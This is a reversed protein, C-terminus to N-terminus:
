YAIDPLKNTLWRMLLVIPLSAATLLLGFAAAYNYQQNKIVYQYMWFAITSTEYNIGDGYFLLIPGSAGFVNICSLFMITGFTSGILPIVIQFMERMPKVGDIKGYEIVSEPIRNMAGSFLIINMGLGTWLTFVLIAWRASNFSYLFAPVSHGSLKKWLLDIPGGFEFINKYIAVLVVGSVIMPIVFIFRFFQWGTIKKYIFYSLLLSLMNSLLGGFFFLMTNKLSILIDSQKGMKINNFFLRFNSFGWEGTQQDKFAILFSDFNVYVYFVAFHLIAVALMAYVFVHKKILKKTRPSIGNKEKRVSGDM